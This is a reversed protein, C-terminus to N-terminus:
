SRKANGFDMERSLDAPTLSRVTALADAFSTDLKKRIDSLTPINPDSPTSGGAYDKVRNEDKVAGGPLRVNFYRDHTAACHMAQWAIHARGPGPRWSLVKQIDQGSKEITTLVGLLRGRAFEMAAILTNVDM